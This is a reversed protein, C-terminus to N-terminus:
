TTPYRIFKAWIRDKLFWGVLIILGYVPIILGIGGDFAREEVMSPTDNIPCIANFLFGPWALVRAICYGQVRLTFATMSFMGGVGFSIIVRPLWLKSLRM